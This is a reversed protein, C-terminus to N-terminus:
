SRPWLIIVICYSMKVLDVTLGKPHKLYEQGFSAVFQGATTFVSIRNNDYETVFIQDDEDIHICVPNMIEGPGTGKKGITRQIKWAEDLM